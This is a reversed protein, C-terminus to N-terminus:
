KITLTILRMIGLAGRGCLLQYGVTHGHHQTGVTGCNGNSGAVYKLVALNGGDANGAGVGLHGLAVVVVITNAEQIRELAGYKCVKSEAIELCLLCVAQGLLAIVVGCTVAVVKLLGKLGQAARNYLFREGVAVGVEGRIDGVGLALAAINEKSGNGDRYASAAVYIIM